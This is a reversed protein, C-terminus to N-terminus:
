TRDFGAHSICFLRGHLRKWEGTNLRLWPSNRHIFDEGRQEGAQQGEGREGGFWFWDSWGRGGRQREAFDTVVASERVVFRSESQVNISFGRGAAFAGRLQEFTVHRNQGSFKGVRQFNDALSVVVQEDRRTGALEFEFEVHDGFDLAGFRPVLNGEGARQRRNGRDDRLGGTGAHFDLQEVARQEFGGPGVADRAHFTKEPRVLGDRQAPLALDGLDGALSQERHIGDDGRLDRRADHFVGALKAVLDDLAVGRLERQRQGGRLGERPQHAFLDAVPMRGGVAVALRQCDLEDFGNFLIVGERKEGLLGNFARPRVSGQIRRLREFDFAFGAREGNGGLVREDFDFREGAQALDVRRVLGDGGVTEVGPREGDRELETANLRDDAHSVTHIRPKFFGPEHDRVAERDVDLLGANIRHFKQRGGSKGDGVHPAFPHLVPLHAISFQAHVKGGADEARAFQVHLQLLRQFSERVFYGDGCQANGAHDLLRRLDTRGGSWTNAELCYLQGTQAFDRHAVKM